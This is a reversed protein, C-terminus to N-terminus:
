GEVEYGDFWGDGRSEPSNCHAQAEQLSLGTEKIERAGGDRFFRVIQYKEVNNNEQQIEYLGKM